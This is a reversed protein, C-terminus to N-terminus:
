GGLGIIGAVAGAVIIEAGRTSGIVDFVNGFIPLLRNVGNEVHEPRPEIKSTASLQALERLESCVSNLEEILESASNVRLLLLHNTITQVRGALLLLKDAANLRALYEQGEQSLEVSRFIAQVRGSFHGQHFPFTLYDTAGAELTKLIYSELNPIDGPPANPFRFLVLIPLNIFTNRIKRVIRLDDSNDFDNDVVAMDGMAGSSLRKELASIGRIPSLSYGADKLISTLIPWLGKGSCCLSITKALKSRRLFIKEESDPNPTAHYM